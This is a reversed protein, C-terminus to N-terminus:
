EASESLEHNKWDIEKDYLNQNSTKATMEQSRLEYDRQM